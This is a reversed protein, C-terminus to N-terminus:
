TLLRQRLLLILVGLFAGAVFSGAFALIQSLWTWRGARSLCAEALFFLSVPMGAVASVKALEIPQFLIGSVTVLFIPLVVPRRKILLFFLALSMAGLAISVVYPRLNKEIFDLFGYLGIVRGVGGLVMVALILIFPICANFGYIVRALLGLPCIRPDTPIHRLPDM